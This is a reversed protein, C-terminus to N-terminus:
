LAKVKNQEVEKLFDETGKHFKIGTDNKFFSRLDRNTFSSNSNQLSAMDRFISELIEKILKPSAEESAFLVAEVAVTKIVEKQNPYTNATIAFSKFSNYKSTFTEVFDDEIGILRANCRKLTEFVFNNPNSGVLFTIDISNSDAISRCLLSTIEYRSFEELSNKDWGKEKILLRATTNEGSNPAGINIREQTLIDNFSRADSGQSAIIFIPEYYLTAVVRLKDKSPHNQIADAQAIGISTKDTLVISINELSGATTRTICKIKNDVKSANILRCFINGIKFYNGSKTGSGITLITSPLQASANVSFFWYAILFYKWFSFTINM